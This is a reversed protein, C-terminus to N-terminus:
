RKSKNNKSTSYLPTSHRTSFNIKTNHFSAFHRSTFPIISFRGDSCVSIRNQSGRIGKRPGFDGGFWGLRAGSCGVHVWTPAGGHWRQTLPLMERALGPPPRRGPTSKSGGLGQGRARRLSCKVVLKMAERYDIIFKRKTELDVRM